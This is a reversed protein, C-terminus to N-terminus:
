YSIMMSCLFNINRGEYMQDSKEIPPPSPRPTFIQAEEIVNLSCYAGGPLILPPRQSGANLERGLNENRTGWNWLSIKAGPWLLEYREGPILHDAYSEPHGINIRFNQGPM